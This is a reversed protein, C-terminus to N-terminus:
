QQKIKYIVKSISEKPLKFTMPILDRRKFRPHYGFRMIEDGRLYSKLHKKEFNRRVRFQDISEGDKRQPNLDGMFQRRPVTIIKETM